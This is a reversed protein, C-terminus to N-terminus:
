SDLKGYLLAMYYNYVDGRVYKRKYSLKHVVSIDKVIKWETEDYEMGMKGHLVHASGNYFYPIGRFIAHSASDEDIIKSMVIHLLYYNIIENENEWYACLMKRAAHLIRNYKDACLWWSSMKIVPSDMISAQFLFMEGKVMYEPILGSCFVTADIWCGGYTCLLELRIIDSLHTITIYQKEYKQWIFDPLQMYKGLNKKTLLIVHFGEPKNRCVSEYCKRVLDPAKEMGQLWFIWITNNQGVCENGALDAVSFIEKTMYRDLYRYVESFKLEQEIYERHVFKDLYEM